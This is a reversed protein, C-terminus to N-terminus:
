SELGHQPIQSVNEHQGSFRFTTKIDDLQFREEKSLDASTNVDALKEQEKRFPIRFLCNAEYFRELMAQDKIRVWMDNLTGVEIYGGKRLFDTYFELSEKKASIVM